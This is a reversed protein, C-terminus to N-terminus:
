DNAPKGQKKGCWRELLGTSNGRPLRPALTSLDTRHAVVAMCAQLDPDALIGAINEIRTAIYQLTQRDPGAGAKVASRDLHAAMASLRDATLPHTIKARLYHEWERDTKVKGEAKLQGKSPMFYAQAQFFLIAGMPITSLRHLIDLAFRDAKKENIRAQATTIGRYGRHGFYIHGLEHLLIFAFASNRFRLSLGDVKKDALANNPIQLAKLPAPYRGGPFDSARKYRLMAVYEDITELSYKRLHLWAYATSLDELFMLSLIPMAVFGQGGRKGSYYDMPNHNMGVLPFELRLGSLARKEDRTLSPRIAKTLMENIRSEFRPKESALKSTDYLGSFGEAGVTAPAVAFWILCFGWFCKM